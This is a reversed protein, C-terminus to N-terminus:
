CCGRRGCSHDQGSGRDGGNGTRLERVDCDGIWKALRFPLGLLLLPCDGQELPHCHGWQVGVASM